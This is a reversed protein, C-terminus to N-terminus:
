YIPSFARQERESHPSPAKAASAPVAVTRPANAESNTPLLAAPFEHVDATQGGVVVARKGVVSNDVVCGCVGEDGEPPGAPSKKEDRPTLQRIKRADKRPDIKEIADNRLVSRQQEVRGRFLFRRETGLGRGLQHLGQALLADSRKGDSAGNDRGPLRVFLQNELGDTFM